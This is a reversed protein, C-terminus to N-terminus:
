FDSYELPRLFITENRSVNNKYEDKGSLAKWIPDTGFADWHKDRDQKNNFATMYMLNPMRAGSLVQSYFVANFNLRKFLGIEDGINFMDVKNQHYRETASEYSRLEYIREAKPSKLSPVEANPMGAFAKLLINEIRIYPAANYPANLYAAGDALYRQDASLEHELEELKNLGKMPIFVYIRKYTTDASLTAFVGVKKVGHRHLAPVYAQQLYTNLQNFQAETKYHYVKLQYYSGDKAAAIVAAVMILMLTFVYKLKNFSIM